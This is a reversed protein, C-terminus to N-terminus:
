TLRPHGNLLPPMDRAPKVRPRNVDREFKAQAATLNNFAEELTEGPDINLVASALGEPCKAQVPAILSVQQTEVHRRMILRQGKDNSFSTEQWIDM